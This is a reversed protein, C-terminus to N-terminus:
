RDDYVASILTWPADRMTSRIIPNSVSGRSLPESRPFRSRGGNRLTALEREIEAVREDTRLLRRQVAQIAHDTGAVRARDAAAEARMDHLEELIADMRRDAARQGDLLRALQAALFDLDVEAM